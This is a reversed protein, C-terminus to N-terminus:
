EEIFFLEDGPKIKGKRLVRATLGARGKMAKEAGEGFNKDMQHCPDCPGTIEIICSDGIGIMRKENDTITPGSYLLNRRTLLPDIEEKNLLNATQDIEQQSILTLHRKGSRGSYHDGNLGNDTDLEAEIILKLPAKKAPRVAISVVKRTNTDVEENIRM